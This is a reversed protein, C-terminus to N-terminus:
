HQGDVPRDVLGGGLPPAQCDAGLPQLAGLRRRLSVARRAGAAALPQGLVQLDHVALHPADGRPPGEPRHALVVLEPEDAALQREGLAVRVHAVRRDVRVVLDHEALEDVWLGPRQHGGLDGDVVLRGLPVGRQSSHTLMSTSCVNTQFRRGGARAALRLRRTSKLNLVSSFSKRRVTRSQTSALYGFSTALSSSARSSWSPDFKGRCSHSSRALAPKKPMPTSSSCPPWPPPATMWDIKMSSIARVRAPSLQSQPTVENLALDIWANPESSSLASNMGFSTVPSILTAIATVSGEPPVSRSPAIRVVAVGSPSPKRRLPALIQDVM